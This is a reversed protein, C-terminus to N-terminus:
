YCVGNVMSLALLFCLSFLMQKEFVDCAINIVFIARKSFTQDLSQLVHYLSPFVKIIFIYAIPV